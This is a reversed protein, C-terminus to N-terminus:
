GASLKRLTLHVFHQKRSRREDRVRLGYRVRSSGFGGINPSTPANCFTATM